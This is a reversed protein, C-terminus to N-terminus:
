DGEKMFLRDFCDSHTGSVLTERDGVSTNPWVRRIHAGAQWADWNTRLMSVGTDGHCYVCDTIYIIHTDPSTDGDLDINAHVPVVGDVSPTGMAAEKLSALLNSLDSM